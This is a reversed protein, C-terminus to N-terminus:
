SHYNGVKKLLRIDGGEIKAAVRSQQLSEFYWRLHEAVPTLLNCYLALSYIYM